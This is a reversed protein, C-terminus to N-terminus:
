LIDQLLEAAWDPLTEVRSAIQNNLLHAVEQFPRALSSNDYIKVQDVLQIATRIHRLTRPIRTNIKEVPVDHGGTEVRQAVRAQNLQASQLHIFVLIVEYGQAKASAVFDIKSPHSFVTEFCFSIGRRLLNERLKAVIQSALYSSDKKRNLSEAVIDANVFKVGLPKLFERYFTTKGAGNGGAM